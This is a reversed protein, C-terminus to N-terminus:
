PQVVALISDTRIIAVEVGDMDTVNSAAYKGFLVTDGTKVEVPARKGCSLMEGMGVALVVGINPRERYAAALVIGGRSKEPPTDVRIVAVGPM